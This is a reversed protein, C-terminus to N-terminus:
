LDKIALKLDASKWASDFEKQVWAAAESKKQAKLSEMLGFLM